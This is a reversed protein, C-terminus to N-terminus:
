EKSKFKEMPTAFYEGSNPDFIYFARGMLPAHVGAKETLTYVMPAGFKSKPSKDRSGKLIGARRLLSVYQRATTDNALKLELLDDIRFRKLDCIATWLLQEPDHNHPLNTRGGDLKNIVPVKHAMPNFQRKGEQTLRWLKEQNKGLGARRIFGKEKYAKVRRYVFSRSLGAQRELVAYSFLRNVVMARQLLTIKQM